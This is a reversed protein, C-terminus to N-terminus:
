AFIECPINPMTGDNLGLCSLQLWKFIFSEPDEFEGLLHAMTPLDGLISLCVM